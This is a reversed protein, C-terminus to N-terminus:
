TPPNPPASGDMGVRWSAYPRALKVLSCSDSRISLNRATGSRSLVHTARGLFRLADCSYIQNTNQVFRVSM